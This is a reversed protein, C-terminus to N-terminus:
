RFLTFTDASRNNDKDLPTSVVSGRMGAYAKTGGLIAINTPGNNDGRVVASAILEGGALSFNGLCQSASNKGGTVATCSAYLTGAPKGGKTVLRSVFVFSDGQSPPAQTGGLPPNDVFHFSQDVEILHFTTVASSTAPKTSAAGGVAAFVLWTALTGVLAAGLLKIRM